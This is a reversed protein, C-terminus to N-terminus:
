MQSRFRSFRPQRYPQVIHATMRCKYFPEESLLTAFNGNHSMGMMSVGNSLTAIYYYGPPYDTADSRSCLCVNFHRHFDTLSLSRIQFLMNSLLVYNMRYVYVLVPDTRLFLDLYYTACNLM